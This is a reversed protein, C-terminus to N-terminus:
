DSDRKWKSTTTEDEDDSDEEEDDDDDDETTTIVKPTTTESDIQKVSKKKKPPNAVLSAPTIPAEPTTKSDEGFKKSKVVHYIYRPRQGSGKASLGTENSANSSAGKKIAYGKFLAFWCIMRVVMGYISKSVNM